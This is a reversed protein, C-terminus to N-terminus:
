CLLFLFLFVVFEVFGNALFVALPTTLLFLLVEQRFAMERKYAALFGAFSNKMAPALRAIYGLPKKDTM